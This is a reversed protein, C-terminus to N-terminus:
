KEPFIDPAFPIPNPIPDPIPSELARSQEDIERKHAEVVPRWNGLTVEIEQPVNGYHSFKLTATEGPSRELLKSVLHPFTPVPEGDIELIQDGTGLGAAAAAGGPLAKDIQCGDFHVNCSIGLSAGREQINANNLRGALRHVADSSLGNGDISYITIGWARVSWNDELRTVHWLAEDGGSMEDHLWIEIRALEHGPIVIGYPSGAPWPGIVIGADQSTAPVYVVDAGLERLAAVARQERLQQHATLVASARGSVTSRNTRSLRELAREADDAELVCGDVFMRELASMLYPLQDLAAREMAREIGPIAPRGLATLEREAQVREPQRDSRLQRVLLLVQQDVTEAPADEATLVPARLLCCASILATLIRAHGRM